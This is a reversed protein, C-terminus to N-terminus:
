SQIPGSPCTVPDPKSGPQACTAALSELSERAVIRPARYPKRSESVVFAQREEYKM